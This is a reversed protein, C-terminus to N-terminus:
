NEELLFPRQKLYEFTKTNFIFEGWNVIKKNLGKMIEEFQLKNLRKGLREESDRVVKEKAFPDVYTGYANLSISEKSYIPIPLDLLEEISLIEPCMLAKGGSTIYSEAQTKATKSPTKTNEPAVQAGAKKSPSQKRANGRVGVKIIEELEKRKRMEFNWRIQEDDVMKGLPEDIELPTTSKVLKYDDSVIDFYFEHANPVKKFVFHWDNLILKYSADPAAATKSLIGEQLSSIDLYRNMDDSIQLPNLHLVQTEIVPYFPKKGELFQLLIERLKPPSTPHAM